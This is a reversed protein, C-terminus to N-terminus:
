ISNITSSHGSNHIVSPTGSSQGYASELAGLAILAFALLSLVTNSLVRTHKSITTRLGIGDHGTKNADVDKTGCELRPHRPSTTPTIPLRDLECSGSMKARDRGDDPIRVLKRPLFGFPQRRASM